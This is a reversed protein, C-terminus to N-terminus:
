VGSITPKLTKSVMKKRLIYLLYCNLCHILLYQHRVKAQAERAFGSKAARYNNM